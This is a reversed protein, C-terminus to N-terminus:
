NYKSLLKSILYESDREVIPKILEKVIEKQQSTMEVNVPQTIQGTNIMILVNRDKSRVSADLHKGTFWKASFYEPKEKLMKIVKEILLQEHQKLLSLSKTKKKRILRTFIRM